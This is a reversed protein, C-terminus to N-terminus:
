RGVFIEWSGAIAITISGGQELLATSTSWLILVGPLGVSGAPKERTPNSALNSKIVQLNLSEFINLWIGREGIKGAIQYKLDSLDNPTKWLVTHVHYVSVFCPLFWLCLHQSLHPLSFLFKQKLLLLSLM